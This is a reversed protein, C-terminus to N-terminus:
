GQDWIVEFYGILMEEWTQLGFYVTRTPDPLARQALPKGFMEAPM